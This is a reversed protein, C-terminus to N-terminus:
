VQRLLMVVKGHRHNDSKWNFQNRFISEGIGFISKEIGIIPDEIGFDKDNLCLLKETSITIRHESRLSPGSNFTSGKQNRAVHAQRM